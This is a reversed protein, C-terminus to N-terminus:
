SEFFIKLTILSVQKCVHVHVYMPHHLLQYVTGICEWKHLFIDGAVHLVIRMINVVLALTVSVQSNQRSNDQMHNELTLIM